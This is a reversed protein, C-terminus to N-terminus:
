TYLFFIIGFSSVPLQMVACEENNHGYNDPENVSKDTLKVESKDAYEYQHM